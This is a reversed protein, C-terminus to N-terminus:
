FSYDFRMENEYTEKPAHHKDRVILPCARGSANATPPIHIDKKSVSSAWAKIIASAASLPPRAAKYFVGAQRFRYLKPPLLRGGPNDPFLLSLAGAWNPAFFSM